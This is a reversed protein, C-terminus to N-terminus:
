IAPWGARAADHVARVYSRRHEPTLRDPLLVGDLHDLEHQLVSAHDGAAAIERARGHEDCAHVVVNACREVPAVIGPMSLCGEVFTTREASRVVIAPNVLVRAPGDREEDPVRYVVVRVLVGLQPAALGAGTADDIVWRLRTILDALGDDFREVPRASARLVPDGWLRIERYAALRRARAQPDPPSDHEAM